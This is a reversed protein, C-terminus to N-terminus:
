WLCKRGWGQVPGSRWSAWAERLVPVRADPPGSCGLQQTDLGQLLCPLHIIKVCGM